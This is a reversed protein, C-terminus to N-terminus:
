RQAHKTADLIHPKWSSRMRAAPTEPSVERRAERWMVPGNDRPQGAPAPGDGAAAGDSGAAPPEQPTNQSLVAALQQELTGAPVGAGAGDAAWSSDGLRESRAFIILLGSDESLARPM